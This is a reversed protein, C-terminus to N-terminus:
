VGFCMLNSSVWWLTHTSHGKGGVHAGSPRADKVAVRPRTAEPVLAFIMSGKNCFLMKLFPHYSYFLCFGKQFLEM